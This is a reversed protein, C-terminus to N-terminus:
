FIYRVAVPSQEALSQIGRALTVARELGCDKWGVGTLPTNSFAM